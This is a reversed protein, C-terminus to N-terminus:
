RGVQLTAWGDRSVAQRVRWEPRPQPFDTRYHAGRSETRRLAAAALLWSILGAAHEGDPSPEALRSMASRLGHGTRCVGLDADAVQRIRELSPWGDGPVSLPETIRCAPGPLDDALAARRGFVLAELLSNSALRNAGHVGTSAVEGCALMGPVTTRGWEDTLVGGVFYHAAPGVPIPDRAIDLRVERCTATATPFRDRVGEIRTADLFVPRGTQERVAAIARAVVDRPALEARPDFEPMFRRADSDVLIAGEGRLAETLLRAPHDAVDLATPHFQVFELDAVAAGADWAVAMAEGTAREPGTRRGFIGCAGGGALVTRDAELETGGDTRVGFARGSLLLVQAMRAELWEVRSERRVAALLAELLAWGTADGGAHLVRRFSHGGELTPAGGADFVMGRRRLEDIAAPAESTLIRIVKPDGLGAGASLTDEAHVAPADGEAVAAAIGGQALATSSGKEPDPAILTVPGRGAAHLACWLGAAGAGVVLTKV